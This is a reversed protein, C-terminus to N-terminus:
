VNQKILNSLFFPCASSGYRSLDIDFQIDIVNPTQNIDLEFGISKIYSNVPYIRRLSNDVFFYAIEGRDKIIVFYVRDDRINGCYVIVQDGFHQKDVFHIIKHM